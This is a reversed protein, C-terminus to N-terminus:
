SVISFQIKWVFELAFDIKKEIAGFVQRAFLSPQTALTPDDDDDRTYLGAARITSGNGELKGLTARFETLGSVGGVNTSVDASKDFTYYKAVTGQPGTDTPAAAPLTATSAEIWLSHVGDEAPVSGAAQAVLRSLAEIGDFVITNPASNHVERTGDDFVRWIELHGAVKLRLCSEM